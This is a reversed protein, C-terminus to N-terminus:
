SGRVKLKINFTLEFASIEPITEDTFQYDQAFIVLGTEEDYFEKMLKQEATMKNWHKPNPQLVFEAGGPIEIQPINELMRVVLNKFRKMQRKMERPDKRQPSNKPIRNITVNLTNTADTQEIRVEQRIDEQSIDDLFDEFLKHGSIIRM